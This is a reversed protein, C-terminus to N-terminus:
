REGLVEVSVIRDLRFTRQDERTHCYAVLYIVEKNQTIYKPTIIRQSDNTPTTYRIQLSRGNVLAEAIVPPLDLAPTTPVYIAGGQAELLDGITIIRQGALKQVMRKFIEATMYVDNLARHARGMRVNLQKAIHGLNNRGFYFHHRALLLTCVWPNSPTGTGNSNTYGGAFFEMGVFGADFAANHAVILAGDLMALLDPAIAAFTPKGLLDIDEIGNVRSAGPDMLREPQLLQNLESVKEGNEYRVAGIEVVRHGTHPHLGTTETDLVVFPASLPRKELLDEYL